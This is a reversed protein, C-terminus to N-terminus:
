KSKKSKGEPRKPSPDSTKQRPQDMPILESVTKFKFGKAILSDIVNPMAAVTTAHIDHSLVISGPRTEALIRRTVIESNRNKWDLPDVSWMIIKFGFTDHLWVREKETISGYPPRLIQPTVGTAQAVVDQTRQV